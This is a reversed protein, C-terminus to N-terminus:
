KSDKDQKRDKDIKRYEKNAKKWMYPVYPYFSSELYKEKMAIISPYYSGYFLPTDKEVSLSKIINMIRTIDQSSKDKNLYGLNTKLKIVICEVYLFRIRVYTNALKINDINYYPILEYEANNYIDMIPIKDNVYVTMKIERFDTPIKYDLRKFSITYSQKEFIKKVQEITQKINDSICIFLYKDVWVVDLEKVFNWLKSSKYIINHENNGDNGGFKTIIQKYIPWKDKCEINYLVTYINMNEVINDIYEGNGIISMGLDIINYFKIFYKFNFVIDFEKYPIKTRMEVFETLEAIENTLENALYIGNSSYLHYLEITSRAIKHKIIFRDVLKYIDIILDNLPEKKAVELVEENFVIEIM